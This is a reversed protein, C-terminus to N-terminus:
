VDPNSLVKNDLVREPLACRCNPIVKEENMEPTKTDRTKQMIWTMSKLM